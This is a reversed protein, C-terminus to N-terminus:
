RAPAGFRKVFVRKLAAGALPRSILGLLKFHLKPEVVITWSFVSGSGDPAVRYDEALANLGPANFREVYFAKRRAQNDWIFYREDAKASGGITATRTAGVGFPQPSTWRIKLGPVYDFGEPSTLDSWVEDASSGLRVNLRVLEVGSRLFSEDVEKGKPM